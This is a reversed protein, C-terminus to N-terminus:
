LGYKIKFKKFFDEMEMKAELSIRSSFIYKPIVIKIENTNKTKEFTVKKNKIDCDIVKYGQSTWTEAIANSPNNSFYSKNMYASACLKCNIIREIGSFTLTVKRKKENKFYVKLKDFKSPKNKPKNGSEIEQIENIVNLTSRPTLDKINGYIYVLESDICSSHIYMLNRITKDRSLKKFIVTRDEFEEIYKGCIACKGYQRNWLEKFRGTVNEIDVREELKIFYDNDIYYNKNVDIQKANILIVDVLNIIRCDRDTKISFNYRGDAAKWYFRNIIQNKSLKPFLEKLLRYIMASVFSDIEIFADKAETIRHYSAWGNLRQNVETVLKRPTWKKNPDFLMEEFRAKFKEKSEFSPKSHIVGSKKYYTRSLFEFEDGSNLNLIKTKTLSLKLGREELFDSLVERFREADKRSKALIVMDDAFRICWGNKYDTIKKGQLDYLLKQIGDLVM